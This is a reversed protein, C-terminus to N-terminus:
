TVAASPESPSCSLVVLWLSFVVSAAADPPSGFSFVGGLILTFVGTTMAAGGITTSWGHDLTRLRGNLRQTM